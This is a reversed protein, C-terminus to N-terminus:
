STGHDVVYTTFAATDRGRAPEDGPYEDPGGNRIRLAERLVRHFREPYHSLGWRGAGNKTTMEGTVLLHHLRAVGLVCWCCADPRNGEAPMKALGEANARWYSDLNGRTFRVLDDHDDRVGLDVSSPGRVAVGGRALESWAVPSLDCRAEPYWERHLACPVDPVQEPDHRLDDAVVHMGDFPLDPHQDQVVGHSDALADLEGSLPRHDLVAVFDVDSEGPVFEGFALGGRLLLGTVLGPARTDIADLWVDCVSRVQDPLDTM